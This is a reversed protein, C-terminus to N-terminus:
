IPGSTPVTLPGLTPGSKKRINTRIITRITTMTTTMITTGPTFGRVFDLNHEETLVEFIGEDTQQEVYHVLLLYDSILNQM